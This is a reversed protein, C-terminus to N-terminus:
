RAVHDLHRAVSQKNCGIERGISRLSAGARLKGEIAEREPHSCLICRGRNHSVTGGRGQAISQLQATSRRALREGLAAGRQKGWERGLRYGAGAEVMREIKAILQERSLGQENCKHTRRERASLVVGCTECPRLIPKRGRMFETKCLNALPKCLNPERSLNSGTV